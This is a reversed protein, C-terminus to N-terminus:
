NTQSKCAYVNLTICLYRMNLLIFIEYNNMFIEHLEKGGGNKQCQIPATSIAPLLATWTTPPTLPSTAVINRFGLNPV